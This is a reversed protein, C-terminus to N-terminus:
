ACASRQPTDGPVLRDWEDPTLERSVLACAREVWRDPDLSFQLIKGSTAVWVTDTSEDYWPPSPPASGNGTWLTGVLEATESDWLRVTGDAEVVVLLMGDRAFGVSVVAGVETVRQVSETEPDVIAAGDVGALAVAGSTPDVVAVSPDSFGSEMQQVRSGSPGFTHVTGGAAVVHLGGLPTRAVASTTFPPSENSVILSLNGPTPDYSYVAKVLAGEFVAVAGAGAFGGGLEVVSSAGLAPPRARAADRSQSVVNLGSWLELQEVLEGGRWRAVLRGDNWALHGGPEPTMAVADFAEGDRRLEIETRRGSTLEVDEPSDSPTVVAARGDGFGVLADAEVDWGREVLPGGTPEVVHLTDTDGVPVIVVSGDPRVRAESAAPIDIRPGIRGDFPDFVEVSRSGVAVIAGDPRSGLAIVELSQSMSATELVDRSTVDVVAITGDERGVLLAHGDPQFAVATVRAPSSIRFTELGTEADLVVVLGGRTDSGGPGDFLETGVAFLGARPSAAAVPLPGDLDFWLKRRDPAVEELSDADVVVIEGVYVGPALPSGWGLTGALDSSEVDERGLRRGQGHLLRDQVVEPILPGGQFELEVETWGSSDSGIWHVNLNSSEAWRRRTASDEWWGSCRLPAPGHDIIEGSVLDKELADTGVSAFERLGDSSIRRQRILDGCPEAPLREIAAVRGGFGGSAIADLLARTTTPGPARREAELALLLAQEPRDAAAAASRAILESLEAEATAADAAIARAEAARAERDARRQQTFAVGGAILAIVLAAATGTVLRRLRRVRRQELSRDAEAQVRSAELFDRDIPRLWDPNSEAVDMASELRRGRYLDSAQRGGREWVTTAVGIAGVSRRLERDEALWTRLRPWDRLLAEHAVEVTPERTAPDRDTSLLRASVFADLLWATREGDGFESRLARRRTDEAGEGFTVLRGFIRRVEADDDPGGAAVIRDARAALAGTLGGLERHTALLMTNSVRRDFLETLSFQLLPLATPRASLGAVLETALAPEVQVGVSTAPLSIARGLEDPTMPRVTVTGRTVLEAVSANRLPADYHDARLTAVVRLPSERTAVADALEGLFRDRVDADRTQTFLEEFQDVVLLLQARDDPLV